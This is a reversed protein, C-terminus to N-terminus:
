GTAICAVPARVASWHDIEAPDRGGPRFRVMPPPKEPVGLAAPVKENVTVAVAGASGVLVGPVFDKMMPTGWIM